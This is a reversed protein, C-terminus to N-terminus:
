QSPEVEKRRKSHKVTLSCSSSPLVLVSSVESNGNDIYLMCVSLIFHMYVCVCVSM